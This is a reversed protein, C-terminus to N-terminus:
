MTLDADSYWTLDTGTVELDALTSGLDLTQAVDGTPATVGACPDVVTVTIALADSTCDGVTQTVYYTTGDVVETTDAIEMTLDADSYWTLDTGTVDLDALTSGLDLTQTADGMPATVGACPDIVTVTIALADSTCAGVTQTVYYTTG